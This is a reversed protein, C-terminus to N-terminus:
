VTWPRSATPVGSDIEAAQLLRTGAGRRRAHPTVLLTTLFGQDFFTYELVIYGIPGSPDEAVLASGQECWNRIKEVPGADAAAATSDIESLSTWDSSDVCRVVFEAGRDETSMTNM